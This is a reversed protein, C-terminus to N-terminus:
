KDVLLHNEKLLKKEYDNVEKSIHERQQSVKQENKGKEDSYEEQLHKAKEVDEHEDAENIMELFKKEKIDNKTITDLLSHEMEEMMEKVKEEVEEKTLYKETTLHHSDNMEKSINIEQPTTENYRANNSTNLKSENKEKELQSQSIMTSKLNSEKMTKNNEKDITKNGASKSQETHNLEYNESGGIVQSTFPSFEAGTNAFIQKYFDEKNLSGKKLLKEFKSLMEEKKLKMEDQLKRKQEAIAIKQNKM